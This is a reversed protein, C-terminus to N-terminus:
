MGVANDISANDLTDMVKEPHLENLLDEMEANGAEKIDMKKAIATVLTMLRTVEHETLLGIQLDLEARKDALANSRNQSILVITTLFISEVAAFTALIIFSPDFPKLLIIGTNWLIWGTFFALHIFVFVMSGTFTSIRDIMREQFNRKNEEAKKRTLLANINREVVKAMQPMDKKQKANM